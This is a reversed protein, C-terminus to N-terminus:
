LRVSWHETAATRTAIAELSRLGVNDLHPEVALWASKCASCGFRSPRRLACLYELAWTGLTLFVLFLHLSMEAALDRQPNSCHRSCQVLIDAHLTRRLARASPGWHHQVDVVHCGADRNVVDVLHQVQDARPGEVASHFDVTLLPAEAEALHAGADEAALGRAALLVSVALRHRHTLRRQAFVLDVVQHNLELSRPLAMLVVHEPPVADHEAVLEALAQAHAWHRMPHCVEGSGARRNLIADDPHGVSHPMAQDDRRCLRSVEVLPVVYRPRRSRLRSMEHGRHLAQVLFVVDTLVDGFRAVLDGLARVVHGLVQPLVNDLRAM